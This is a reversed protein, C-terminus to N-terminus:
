FLVRYKVSGQCGSRNFAGDTVALIAQIGLLPLALFILLWCIFHHTGARKRVDARRNPPPADATVFASPPNVNLLRVLCTLLRYGPDPATLSQCAGTGNNIHEKFFFVCM